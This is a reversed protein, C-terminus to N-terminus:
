GVSAQADLRAPRQRRSKAGEELGSVVSFLTIISPYFICFTLLWQITKSSFPIGPDTFQHHVGVPILLLFAIFVMRTLGDSLVRGGVMKPLMMYWSVYIPMLWFYVIPHGTFWFLTRTFQPDVKDILGMSWPLLFGLVEVAIGLSAIFWMMYSIISIFALLPVHQGPNDRKWAFYTLLMNLLVLWTSIVLLAAGFYFAPIAKLPAYFTFLVSAQNTLMAYSAFIVGAWALMASLDSIGRNALPRQFGKM